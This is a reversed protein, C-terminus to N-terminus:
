RQHIHRISVYNNPTVTEIIFKTTGKLDGVNSLADSLLAGRALSNSPQDAFALVKDNKHHETVEKNNAITVSEDSVIAEIGLYCLMDFIANATKTKGVGAPGSITIRLERKDSM